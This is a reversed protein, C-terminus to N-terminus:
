SHSTSHTRKAVLLHVDLHTGFVPDRGDLSRDEISGFLRNVWPHGDRPSVLDDSQSATTGHARHELRSLQGHISADSQLRQLLVQDRVLLQHLAEVQLSAGCALEVMRVDYADKVEPDVVTGLDRVDGHLEELASIQAVGNLGDAGHRLSLATPEEGLHGLGEDGSVLLADYVAVQLGIVDVKAGESITILVGPIPLGGEDITSGKIAGKTVSANAVSPLVLLIMLLRLLFRMTPM